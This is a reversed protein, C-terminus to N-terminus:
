SGPGAEAEGSAKDSMLKFRNWCKRKAILSGPIDGRGAVVLPGISGLM